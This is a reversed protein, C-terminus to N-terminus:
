HAPRSKDIEAAMMKVLEADSMPHWGHGKMPRGYEFTAQADTTKMFDEFLYVGLNLSYNDMDGVYVHIRGKVLPGIKSWNRQAYQNLDFGHDRM